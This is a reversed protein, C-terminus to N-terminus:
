NTDRLEGVERWGENISVLPSEHDGVLHDGPLTYRPSRFPSFFTTSSDAPSPSSRRHYYLGLGM